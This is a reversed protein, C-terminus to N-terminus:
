KRNMKSVPLFVQEGHGYNDTKGAVIWTDVEVYYEVASAKIMIYKVQLQKLKDLVVKDIGYGQYKIMYHNNSVRKIFCDGQLEGVTVEKGKKPDYVKLM